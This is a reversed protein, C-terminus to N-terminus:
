MKRYISAQKKHNQKKSLDKKIINMYNKLFEHQKNILSQIEEIKKLFFQSNKDNEAIEKFIKSMRSEIDKLIDQDDKISDLNIENIDNILENISNICKDRNWNSM